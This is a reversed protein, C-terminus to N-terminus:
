AAMKKQLIAGIKRAVFDLLEQSPHQQDNFMELYIAAEDPKYDLLRHIIFPISQESLWDHVFSDLIKRRNPESIKSFDPFESALIAEAKISIDNWRAWPAEKSPEPTPIITSTPANTQALSQDM